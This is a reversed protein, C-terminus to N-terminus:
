SPLYSLPTRLVGPEDADRAMYAGIVGSAAALALVAGIVASRRRALRQRRSPAQFLIMSGHSDTRSSRLM